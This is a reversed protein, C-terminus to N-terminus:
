RLMFPQTSTSLPSLFRSCILTINRDLKQSSASVLSSGAGSRGDSQQDKNRFICMKFTKLCKIRHVNLMYVRSGIFSIIRYRAAPQTNEQLSQQGSFHLSSVGMSVGMCQLQAPCRANCCVDWCWCWCTIMNVHKSLIVIRDGAAGPSQERVVTNYLKIDIYMLKWM